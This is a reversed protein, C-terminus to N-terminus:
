RARTTGPAGNLRAEFQAKTEPHLPATELWQRATQPDRDITRAIVSSLASNRQSEDTITLAWQWAEHPHREGLGQVLSATSRDREMGQPLRGIYDAASSPDKDAWTSVADGLAETRTDGPPQTALWGIAEEPSKGAWARAISRMGSNRESEPLQSLRSMWVNPDGLNGPNISEFAAQVLPERMSPPAEEMLKEFRHLM